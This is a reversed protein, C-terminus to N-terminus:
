FNITLSVGAIRGRRPVIHFASVVGTPFRNFNPFETALLPTDDDTLNDVYLSASWGNTNVGVRANFLNLAGVYTLNEADLWTKSNYVYDGRLFWEAGRDGLPRTYTASTSVTNKPVRPAENGAANGDGTLELLTLSNYDILKTDALGYNVELVLNDTAALAIEVESGYVRSKGANKTFNNPILSSQNTDACIWPIQDIENIAQNKWDIYFVTVNATLRRDLWQTKAGLEYTWASEEKIIAKGNRLAEETAARVVPADFYGYFFGGPKNGKAVLGYLNVDEAAQWSVTVRPTFSYYNARATVGNPASQEPSDKAYRGEVSVTVDETVDYDLGGFFGLNEKSAKLTWSPVGNIYPLGYEVRNCFGTFERQSAKNDANFYYVGASGRVPKDQPSNVRIEESHDDWTQLEGSDFLNAWVPGLYPSRDLDRYSELRQRNATAVATIDWGGLDLLGEVLYRQSETQTGIFPAPAATALPTGNAGYNSTAGERLDAINLIAQLGGPKIEGCWWGPLNPNEDTPLYCNLEPHFLSAFHEDDSKTYEAKTNITLNETAIWSLKGTVNWTSEGGLDTFDDKITSVPQGNPWVARYRPDIQVCGDAATQGPRCPNMKNQWQGDFSEWSASAVFLLKDDILPGSLYGSTKYDSDEGAKLYLQGEIEKSNPTKTIYNVAGAFAGRGFKAAQPGRLIEVRELNDVTLAGATGSVYAGDVFFAVNGETGFNALPTFQGRISPADLRRGVSNRNFSFNPTFTAVDYASQINRVRLSEPTFVAVSLPVEQLSEERKRSTVVVEDLAQQANAPAALSLSLAILWTLNFGAIIRSIAM